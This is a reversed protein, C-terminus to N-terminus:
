NANIKKEKLAIPAILMESVRAVNLTASISGYKIRGVPTRKKSRVRNTVKVLTVGLLMKGRIPTAM